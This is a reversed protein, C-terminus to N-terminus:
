SISNTLLPEREKGPLLTNGYFLLLGQLLKYLNGAKVISERM